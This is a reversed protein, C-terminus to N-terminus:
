LSAGQVAPSMMQGLGPGGIPEPVPVGQLPIFEPEPDSRLAEPPFDVTGDAALTIERQEQYLSQNNLQMGDNVQLPGPLLHTIFYLTVKEANHEHLLHQAYSKLYAKRGESNRPATTLFESMMFHRHYLLRPQHEELNPFIGEVQKGGPLELEYRILHSPGPDPSFFAYGHNLYCAQLYPQFFEWTRTAIAPTPPLAYPASFVAAVHLVVLVSILARWKPALTIPADPLQTNANPSITQSM